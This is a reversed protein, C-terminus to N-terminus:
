QVTFASWITTRKFLDNSATIGIIIDCKKKNLTNRVYGIVQPFFDYVVPIGLKKAYRAVKLNFEM